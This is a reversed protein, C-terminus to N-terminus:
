VHFFLSEFSWSALQRYGLVPTGGRATVLCPDQLYGQSRGFLRVGSTRLGTERSLPGPGTECSSLDPFATHGLFPPREAWVAPAGSRGHLGSGRSFGPGRIPDRVVQITVPGRALPLLRRGAKPHDPASVHGCARVRLCPRKTEMYPRVWWQM